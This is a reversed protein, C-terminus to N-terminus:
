ITLIALAPSRNFSSSLIAWIVWPGGRDVCVIGCAIGWMHGIAMAKATRYLSAESYRFALRTLRAQKPLAWVAWTKNSVTLLLCHVIARVSRAGAIPGYSARRASPCFAWRLDQATAALQSRAPQLRPTPPRRATTDAYSPDVFLKQM